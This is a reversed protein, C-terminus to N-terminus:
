AVCGIDLILIVEENGLHTLTQVCVVSYDDPPEASLCGNYSMTRGKNIILLAEKM